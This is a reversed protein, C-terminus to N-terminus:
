VRERCSARGVQDAHYRGVVHEIPHERAEAHALSRAEVGDQRKPKSVMGILIMNGTGEGALRGTDSTVDTERHATRPSTAAAAHRSSARTGESCTARRAGAREAIVM